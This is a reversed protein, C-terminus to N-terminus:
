EEGRDEGSDDSVIACKSLLEQIRTELTTYETLEDPTLLELNHLEKEVPVEQVPQVVKGEIRDWVIDLAKHNLKKAGQLTALVVAEKNTTKVEVRVNGNPLTEILKGEFIVKTDLDLIGRLIKTLPNKQRYKKPQNESSFAPFPPPPTPM